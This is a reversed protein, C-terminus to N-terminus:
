KIEFYKFAIQKFAEFSTDNRKFFHEATTRNIYGRALPTHIEQDIFDPLGNKKAYDKLKQEAEKYAIIESYYSKLKEVDIITTAKDKALQEIKEADPVVVEDVEVIPLGGAVIRRLGIVNDSLRSYLDRYVETIREREEKPLWERGIRDKALKMVYDYFATNTSTVLKIFEMTCPLGEDALARLHSPLQESLDEYRAKTINYMEEDFITEKKM